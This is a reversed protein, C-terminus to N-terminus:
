GFAALRATSGRGGDVTVVEGTMYRSADSLLFLVVDAIDDPNALRGIPVGSLVEDSLGPVDALPALMDTLVAYPRVANVRVGRSSWEAALARTMADAAGKTAAYVSAGGLAVTSMLSSMTVIVGGGSAGMHGGLRGALVLPARVNLANSDADVAACTSTWAARSAHGGGVKTRFTGDAGRAV